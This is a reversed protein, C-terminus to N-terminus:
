KSDEKKIPQNLERLTTAIAEDRDLTHYTLLFSTWGALHCYVLKEALVEPSATICDFVTKSM